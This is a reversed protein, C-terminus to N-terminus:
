SPSTPTPRRAPAARGDRHRAPPRPGLRQRPRDQGPSRVARRPAQRLRRRARGDRQLGRRVPRAAGEHERCRRHRQRARGQRPRAAARPAPLRGLIRAHGPMRGPLRRGRGRHHAAADVQGRRESRAGRDERRPVDLHQRRAASGQRAPAGPASRADDSHIPSGYEEGYRGSRPPFTDSTKSM